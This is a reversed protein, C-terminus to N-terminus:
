AVRLLVLTNAFMMLNIGASIMCYFCYDKIVAFQIGVLFASFLLAGSSALLMLKLLLPAFAPLILTGLMGALMIAYYLLGLTENRVGFTRAWKSETVPSCDHDLPCALPKKQRHKCSLYGADAIGGMALVIFTAVFQM